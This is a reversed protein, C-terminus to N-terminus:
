LSREHTTEGLRYEFRNDSIWRVFEANHTRADPPVDGNIVVTQKLNNTEQIVITCRAEFCGTTYAIYTGQPSFGNFTNGLYYSTLMHVADTAPFYIGVVTDPALADSGITFGIATQDPSSKTAVFRTMNAFVAEDTCFAKRHEDSEINFTDCLGSTEKFWAFIRSDNIPLLTPQKITPETTINDETISESSVSENTVVNDNHSVQPKNTTIYVYVGITIVALVLVIIGITPSTRHSM